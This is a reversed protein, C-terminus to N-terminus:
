PTTMDPRPGCDNWFRCFSCCRLSFCRSFIAFFSSRLCCASVEGSGEVCCRSASDDHFGTLARLGSAIGDVRLWLFRETPKRYTRIRIARTPLNRFFGIRRLAVFGRQAAVTEMTRFRRSDDFHEILVGVHHSFVALSCPRHFPLTHHKRGLSFLDFFPKLIMIGPRLQELIEVFFESAGSQLGRHKLIILNTGPTPSSGVRSNGGM